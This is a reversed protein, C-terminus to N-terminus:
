QQLLDYTMAVWIPKMVHTEGYSVKDLGEQYIFAVQKSM